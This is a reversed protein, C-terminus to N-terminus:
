GLAIDLIMMLMFGGLVALTGVFDDDECCADPILERISVLLMAGAAFGLLWPLLPQLATVALVALVGFLPEVLASTAGIWFAHSRSMGEERLPLAIAAGEPLNQVGVGLALSCAAVMMAADGSQVALAFSLGVAMGEPINHLTVAATLLATERSYRRLAGPIQGVSRIREMIVELVLLFLIGLLIGGTVPTWEPLATEAEEAYEIAPMILSWITSAVMVGAAFGLCIRKSHNKKSKKMLFVVAAGLATMLFTFGTGLAAYKVANM